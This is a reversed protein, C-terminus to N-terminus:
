TAPGEPEKGIFRMAFAAAAAGYHKEIADRLSMGEEEFNGHRARILDDLKMVDLYPQKTAACMITDLYEGPWGIRFHSRMGSWFEAVPTKM